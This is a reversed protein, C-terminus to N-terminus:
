EKTIRFLANFINKYNRRKEPPLNNDAQFRILSVDTPNAIFSGIAGTSLSM